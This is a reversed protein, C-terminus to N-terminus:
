SSCERPPAVRDRSLVGADQPLLYVTVSSAPRISSPHPRPEEVLQLRLALDHDPVDRDIRDLGVRILRAHVEVWFFELAEGLTELRNAEQVM